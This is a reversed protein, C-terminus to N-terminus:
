LPGDGEVLRTHCYSCYRPEHCEFCYAAGEERAELPHQDVWGGKLPEYSTHHCMSCLEPGGDHCSACTAPDSTAQGAHGEDGEAWREPHPMEIGHCDDCYSQEHCMTCLNADVEWTEGHGRAWRAQEHSDPVPEYDAPHCMACEASAEPYDATGHCTYCQGMLSLPGGRSEEPHATRVHCSVCSGNREAHEVHDILIRYGSTAKRNPDHCQLCTDDGIPRAGDVPADVVAGAYAGSWHAGLDRSLLAIRDSLREPYEYWETPSQHCEVCAVVQHASLAWSDSRPTMEHCSACLAPSTSGIDLAVGLAVVAGIAVLLVRAWRPPAPLRPFRRLAPERNEAPLPAASRSEDM